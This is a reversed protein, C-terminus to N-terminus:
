GFARNRWQLGLSSAEIRRPAQRIEEAILSWSSATSASARGVVHIMFAREAAIAEVIRRYWDLPMADSGRQRPEEPTRHAGEGSFREIVRARAFLLSGALSPMTAFSSRSVLRM